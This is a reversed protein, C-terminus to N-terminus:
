IIKVMKNLSNKVDTLEICITILINGKKIYKSFIRVAQILLYNKKLELTLNDIFLLHDTKKKEPFECTAKAKRLISSILIFALVFVLLFLSNREFIGQRIDVKGLELKGVCLRVRQKLEMSKVEIEENTEIYTAINKM